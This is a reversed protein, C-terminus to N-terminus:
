APPTSSQQPSSSSPFLFFLSFDNGMYLAFWVAAALDLRPSYDVAHNPSCSAIGWCSESLTSVNRTQPEVPDRRSASLHSPLNNINVVNETTCETAIENQANASPSCTGLQHRRTAGSVVRDLTRLDNVHHLDAVEATTSRTQVLEARGRAAPRQGTTPM